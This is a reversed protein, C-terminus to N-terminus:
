ALKSNSELIEALATLSKHVPWHPWDQTWNRVQKQAALSKHLEAVTDDLKKIKKSAEEDAVKRREERKTEQMRRIHNKLEDIEQKQRREATM